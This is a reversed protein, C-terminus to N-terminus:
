VHQWTQGSRISHITARSVNFLLALSHETAGNSLHSRIEHVDNPELLVRGHASGRATTGHKDRDECNQKHTGYHLNCARCDVRIGNKHRVEQGEPLPGIFAAAVLRHVYFSKRKRKHNLDVRKYGFSLRFSLQKGPRKRFGGRWHPLVQDCSRVNGLDSVEYLGEYGVVPKWIETEM